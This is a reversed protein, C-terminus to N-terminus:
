FLVQVTRPDIVRGYVSKRSSLNIVEVLDGLAGDSRVVGFTTVLLTESEAKLTVIDGRRVLPARELWEKQIPVRGAIPRRARKGVIERLDQVIGPPASALNMEVQHLDAATFLHGRLVPRELVWVRTGAQVEGTVWVRQAPRGDVNVRVALMLRGLLKLSRPPEVELRVEGAPVVVDEKAQVNAIRVSEPAWPVRQLVFDRFAKEFAEKEIRRSAATVTLTRPGEWVVQRPDIGERRLRVLLWDPDIKFEQGPSPTRGVETTLIRQRLAAPGGACEAVDSVRFTNGTVSAQSRVVCRVPEEAFAAGGAFLGASAVLTLLAVRIGCGRDVKMM